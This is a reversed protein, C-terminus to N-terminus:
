ILEDFKLRGDEGEGVIRFGCFDYILKEEEKEWGDGGVLAGASEM